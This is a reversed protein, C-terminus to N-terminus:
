AGSARMRRLNERIQLKSLIAYYSIFSVFVCVDNDLSYLKNIKKHFGIIQRSFSLLLHLFILIWQSLGTLFHNASWSALLHLWASPLYNPWQFLFCKVCSWKTCQKCWECFYFQLSSFSLFSSVAQFVTRCNESLFLIDFLCRITTQHDRHDLYTVNPLWIGFEAGSHGKLWNNMWYTNGSYKVCMLCLTLQILSVPSLYSTMLRLWPSHLM